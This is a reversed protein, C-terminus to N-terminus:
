LGRSIEAIIDLGEYRFKVRYTSILRAGSRFIDRYVSANAVRWIGAKRGCM